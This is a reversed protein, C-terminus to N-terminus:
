KDLWVQRLSTQAGNALGVYGKVYPQMARYEFGVYLWVWPAAEALMQQAQHYLAVRKQLDTEARAENLVADLEPTNYNSVGQLNGTSLWYRSFMNHPDPNGGNLAVAADFDGKLWRDVYVGLELTEINVTIGLEKLQAQINQAEALATPPEGTAAIITFDFGSVGAENMLSQSKALDKEYCTLSNLPARYFPPTAPATVEGEGLSATDLVQQRDIACSIAQRVRVDKFMERAPNLQLVHYALAPTRSINLASSRSGATIAVRPDNLQAFDIQGARLAALISSESPIARFEVGDLYPQGPVWYNRNAALKIVNDPVWSELMFPGTGNTEKAPDKGSDMWTKSLISSNASTFAALLAV